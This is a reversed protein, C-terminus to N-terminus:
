FSPDEVANYYSIWYIERKELNEKDCYELIEKKFNEKGYKRIARKLATGGGLYNPKNYSDLGIYKKDNILNTTLYIVGTNNEL